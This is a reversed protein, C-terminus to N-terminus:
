KIGLSVIEGIDSAVYITSSHCNFSYNTVGTIFVEAVKKGTLNDMVFLTEPNAYVYAKNGMEAIIGTGNKVNWKSKGTRKDVAHVGTAIATVYIVDQGICPKEVIPGAAHFPITWANKGSASNLKYLKTDESAVYVWEGDPVIPATIKGSTDYQWKKRAQDTHSCFVNGLVTAFFLNDEDVAISTIKSNNDPTIMFKRSFGEEVIVSIRDNGVLYIFESNIAIGDVFNGGLGIKRKQKIAGNYPNVVLLENGVMFWMMNDRYVPDTVPLGPAVLQKDFQIGGTKKNICFLYNEETLVYLYDMHEFIRDISEGAKVPLNVQWNMKMEAKALADPAILASSGMATACVLGNILCSLLCVFFFYKRRM